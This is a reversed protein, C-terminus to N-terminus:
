LCLLERKSSVFATGRQSQRSEEQGGSSNREDWLLHNESRLFPLQHVRTQVGLSSSAKPEWEKLKPFSLLCSGLVESTGLCLMPVAPDVPYLCPSLPDTGPIQMILAPLAGM